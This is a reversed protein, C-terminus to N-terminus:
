GIKSSILSNILQFYLKSKQLENIKNTKNKEKVM